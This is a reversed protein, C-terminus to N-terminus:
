IGTNAFHGAAKGRLENFLMYGTVYGNRTKIWRELTVDSRQRQVGGSTSSLTGPMEKGQVMQYPLFSRLYGERVVGAVSQFVWLELDGSREEAPLCLRIAFQPTKVKTAKQLFTIFYKELDIPVNNPMAARCTNVFPDFIGDRRAQEVVELTKPKPPLAGREEVARHEDASLAEHVGVVAVRVLFQLHRKCAPCQFAKTEKEIAEVKMPTYSPLEEPRVTM